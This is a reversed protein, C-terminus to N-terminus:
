SPGTNRNEQFISGPIEEDEVGILDPLTNFIDCYIRCTCHKWNEEKWFIVRTEIGDCNKESHTSTL